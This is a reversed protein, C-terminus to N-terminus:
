GGVGVPQIGSGIISQPQAMRVPEDTRCGVTASLFAGIPHWSPENYALAAEHQAFSFDPVVMAGESM